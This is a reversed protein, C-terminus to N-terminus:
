KSAKKIKLSFHDHECDNRRWVVVGDIEALWNLLRCIEPEERARKVVQPEIEFLLALNVQKRFLSGEVNLQSMVGEFSQCFPKFLSGEFHFDVRWEGWYGDEVFTTFVNVKVFINCRKWFNWLCTGMCRKDFFQVGWGHVENMAILHVSLLGKQIPLWWANQSLKVDSPLSKFRNMRICTLWQMDQTVHSGMLPKGSSNLCSIM